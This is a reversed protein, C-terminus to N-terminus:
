NNFKTEYFKEFDPYEYGGHINGKPNELKEMFEGQHNCGAEFFESLIDKEDEIMSNLKEIVKPEVSNAKSWEIMLQIATKAM